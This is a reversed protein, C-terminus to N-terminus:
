VFRMEIGHEAFLAILRAERVDDDITSDDNFGMAEHALASNTPGDLDVLPDLVVSGYRCARYPTAHQRIDSETAGAARAYHGLCCMRGTDRDLLYSNVGGRLWTARDVTFSKIAPIIKVTGSRESSCECGRDGNAPPSGTRHRPQSAGHPPKSSAGDHTKAILASISACEIRELCISESYKPPRDGVLPELEARLQAIAADGSEALVAARIEILRTALSFELRVRYSCLITTEANM